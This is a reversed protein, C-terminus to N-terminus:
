QGGKRRGFLRRRKRQPPPASSPTHVTPPQQGTITALIVDLMPYLAPTEAATRGMNMNEFIEDDLFVTGLFKSNDSMALALKNQDFTASRPVKNLFTMVRSTPVGDDKLRKLRKFTNSLGPASLDAITVAWARDQLLPTVLRDVMGTTDVTEIIQTDVIILDAMHTAEAIIAMYLEPTVVNADALHEPPAAVYVFAIDDLHDGRNANIVDPSIYADRLNRSIAADYVSPIDAKALRLYERIDGQGFNGDVLVVRLGQAAARQALNIATTTKGVGGKAGISFVVEGRGHPRKRADLYSDDRAMTLPNDETTLNTPEFDDTIHGYGSQEALLPAEEAPTVTQYLGDSSAKTIPGIPDTEGVVDSTPAPSVSPIAPPIAVSPRAAPPAVPKPEVAPAEVPENVAPAVDRPTYDPNPTFSTPDVTGDAEAWWAGRVGEPAPDSPDDYEWVWSAPTSAAAAVVHEPVGTSFDPEPEVVTTDFDPVDPTPEPESPLADDAIDSEATDYEAADPEAFDPVEPAPEAVAEPEPDSSEAADPIDPVAPAEPTEDVFDEVEAFAPPEVPKARTGTQEPEFEDDFDISGDSALVLSSLSDDIVEMGAASLVDTLRCPTSVVTAGDPFYDQYGDAFNVVVVPQPDNKFVAQRTWTRLLSAVGMNSVLVPLPNQQVASMVSKMAVQLTPSSVVTYGNDRLIDAVEPLAVLGVPNQNLAIDNVTTEICNTADM